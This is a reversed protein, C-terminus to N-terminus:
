VIVATTESHRLHARLRSRSRTIVAFFNTMDSHVQRWSAALYVNRSHARESYVRDRTSTERHRQEHEKRHEFAITHCVIRVAPLPRELSGRLCVSGSSYRRPWSADNFTEWRRMPPLFSSPSLSCCCCRLLLLLLLLLSSFSLLFSFAPSPTHPYM